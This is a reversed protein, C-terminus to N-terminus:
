GGANQQRIVERDCATKVDRLRDSPTKFDVVLTGTGGGTETSSQSLTLLHVQMKKPITKTQNQEEIKLVAGDFGRETAIWYTPCMVVRTLAFAAFAAGLGQDRGIYSGHSMTVEYEAEGIPQWKAQADPYTKALGFDVATFSRQESSFVSSINAAALVSIAIYKLARM